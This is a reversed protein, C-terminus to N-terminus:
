PLRLCPILVVGAHRGELRLMEAECTIAGTSPSGTLGPTAQTHQPAEPHMNQLPGKGILQALSLVHRHEQRQFRALHRAPTQTTWCLSPHHHSPGTMATKWRQM